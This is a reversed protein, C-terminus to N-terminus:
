YPVRNIYKPWWGRANFVMKTVSCNDIELRWIYQSDFGLIHHLLCKITLGHSFVAISQTQGSSLLEQNKLIVEQLWDAVRLSVQRQSEGNPPQFDVTMEAMQHKVKSTQVESRPRSEWDGASYEILRDDTIIPFSSGLSIEATRIARSFPSSYVKDFRIGNNHFLRYLAVAQDEGLQSLPSKESRGGVLHPTINMHSQGHRILYLHIETEPHIM